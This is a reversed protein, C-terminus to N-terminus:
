RRGPRSPRHYAPIEPPSAASISFAATRCLTHPHAWVCHKRARWRSARRDRGSTGIIAAAPYGDKRIRAVLSEAADRACAVLLGGSTQADTLLHRLAEPMRDPLTVAAGYSDWNRHSAGTVHRADALQRAQSLLPRPQM